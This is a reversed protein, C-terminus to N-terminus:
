TGIWGAGSIDIVQNDPGRFKLEYYSRGGDPQPHGLDLRGMATASEEELKRTVADVDEVVFGM